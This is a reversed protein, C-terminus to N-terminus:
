RGNMLDLQNPKSGVPRLVELEAQRERVGRMVGVRLDVAQELGGGDLGVLRAAAAQEDGELAADPGVQRRDVQDRGGADDHRM